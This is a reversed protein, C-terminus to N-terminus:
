GELETINFIIVKEYSNSDAIEKMAKRIGEETKLPLDSDYFVGIYFQLCDAYAMCAIYYKHKM